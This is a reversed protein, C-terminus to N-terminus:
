LRHSSNLRTSKRDQYFGTVVPGIFPGKGHRTFLVSFCLFSFAFPFVLSFSFFSSFILSCVLFLSLSHLSCASISRNGKRGRLIGSEPLRNLLLFEKLCKDNLDSERLTMLGWPLINEQPILKMSLFREEEKIRQWQPRM